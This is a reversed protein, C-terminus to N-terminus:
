QISATWVFDVDQGPDQDVNITFQTSTPSTIWFQTAAGWAEIPTVSIDNLSPTVSLGHTVAISTTGNVLTASGNAETVVGVNDRLVLRSAGSLLTATTAGTKRLVNNFVYSTDATAFAEIFGVDSATEILNGQVYTYPARLRFAFSGGYEEVSNNAILIHDLGPSNDWVVYGDLNSFVNGSVVYNSATDTGCDLFVGNGLGTTIDRIENGSILVDACAVDTQGPGVLVGAEQCNQIHNNSVNVGLVGEEVLIGVSDAVLNADVHNDLVSVRRIRKDIKIVEPSAGATVAGSSINGSVVVDDIYGAGAGQVLVAGRTVQFFNDKIVINSYNASAGSAHFVCVVHSAGASANSANLFKCNQIRVNNCETIGILVNDSSTDEITLNHIGISDAGLGATIVGERTALSLDSTVYLKTSGAQSGVLQTGETLTLKASVLYTGKPLFVVGGSGATIASQIASTDDTTGDGEAGFAKVNFIGGGARNLWSNFNAPTIRDGENVYTTSM